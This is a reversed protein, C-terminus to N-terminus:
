ADPVVDRQEGLVQKSECPQEGGESGGEGVQEGQRQACM